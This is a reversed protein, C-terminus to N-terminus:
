IVDSSQCGLFSPLELVRQIDKLMLFAISKSRFILHNRRLDSCHLIVHFVAWSSLLTLKIVMLKELCKEANFGVIDAV